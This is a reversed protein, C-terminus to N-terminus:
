NWVGLGKALMRVGAFLLLALVLKRVASASVINLVWGGIRAGIMMGIVSPAAIMPLLAGENLCVLAAAPPIIFSSTRAAVKLPVGMVLNLAPVNAWGAGLGFMGAVIGIFVFLVLALPTRRAHWEIDRGSSS